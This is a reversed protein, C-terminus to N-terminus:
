PGMVAPDVETPATSPIGSKQPSAAGRPPNGQALVEETPAQGGITPLPPLNNKARMRNAIGALDQLLATPIRVPKGMYRLTTVGDTEGLRTMMPKQAVMSDILTGVMDRAGVGDMSSTVVAGGRKLEETPQIINAYIIAEAAVRADSLNRPDIAFGPVGVEEEIEGTSTFTTTTRTTKGEGPTIEDFASALDTRMEGLFNTDGTAATVEREIAAVYRASAQTSIGSIGAVMQERSGQTLMISQIMDPTLMTLKEKGTEPDTARHAVVPTGDPTTIVNFTPVSGDPIFASAKAFEEVAAAPDSTLLTSGSMMHATFKKTLMDLVRGESAAYAVPDGLEAAARRVNDWMSKINNGSYGQALGTRGDTDEGEEQGTDLPLAGQTNKLPPPEYGSIDAELNLMETNRREDRGQKYIHGLLAGTRVGQQLGEAVGGYFGQAM